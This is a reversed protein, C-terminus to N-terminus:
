CKLYAFISSYESNTFILHDLLKIELHNFVEKTIQTTELDIKSPEPDQSPHNHILVIQNSKYQEALLVIQKIPIKLNDPNDNTFLKDKIVRLKSDLFVCLLHETNLGYFLSAYRKQFDAPNKLQKSKNESKKALLFLFDKTVKLKIKLFNDINLDTLNCNPKNLNITKAIKLALAKNTSIEAEDKALLIQITDALTLKAKNLINMTTMEKSLFDKRVKKTM